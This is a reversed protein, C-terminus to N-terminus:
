GALRVKPCYHPARGARENHLEATLQELVARPKSGHDCRNYVDRAAATCALLPTSAIARLADRRTIM